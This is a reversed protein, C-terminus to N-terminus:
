KTKYTQEWYNLFNADGFMTGFKAADFADKIQLAEYYLMDDLKDYIDIIAQKYGASYSSSISSTNEILDQLHKKFNEINTQKTGNKM